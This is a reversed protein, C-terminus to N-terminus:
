KFQEVFSIIDDEVADTDGQMPRHGSHPYIILKKYTSGLHNLGDTGLSPPVTFDYKGWLLLSPIKISSMGKSYDLKQLSTIFNSGAPTYYIKVDNVLLSLPDEPSFIKNKVVSLQIGMYEEAEHAYIEIQSSAQFSKRPNHTKCYDVIKQWQAVNKGISIQVTGSDILANKSESNTLQYNHAGDIEIWGKLDQQNNGTELYDAALLGGFSHAYLFVSANQYRYKIVKVVAGLDSVMQALSLNDINSNGASAGANRQDWFAVAYKQRLRATEYDDFNYSGTAPGGHVVLVIVKSATNGKVWVPMDAGNNSVWFVDNASSSLQVDKKKCAQFCAAISVCLLIFTIRRIM